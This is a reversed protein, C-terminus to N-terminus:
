KGSEDKPIVEKNVTTDEKGDESIEDGGARGEQPQLSPQDNGEDEGGVDEEEEKDNEGEGNPSGEPRPEREKKGRDKKTTSDDVDDAIPPVRGEGDNPLLWPEPDSEEEMNKKKKRDGKIEDAYTQIIDGNNSDVVTSSESEPEPAWSSFPDWIKKHSSKDNKREGEAGEGKDRKRNNKKGDKRKEGADVKIIDQFEPEPEPSDFPDWFDNNYDGDGNSNGDLYAM